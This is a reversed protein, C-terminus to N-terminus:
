YPWDFNGNCDRDLKIIFDDNDNSYSMGCSAIGDDSTRILTNPTNGVYKTWVEHKDATLLTLYGHTTANQTLESAIIYGGSYTKTIDEVSYDGLKIVNEALLEGVNSFTGIWLNSSDDLDYCSGAITINGDDELLISRFKCVEKETIIQENLLEGESDIIAIYGEREYSKSPTKSEMIAIFNGNSTECVDHLRDDKYDLTREWEVNGLSSFKVVLGDMESDEISEDASFGMVFGGDSTKNLTYEYSGILNNNYTDTDSISGNDNINMLYVTDSNNGFCAIQYSGNELKEIRPATGDDKIHVYFSKSGTATFKIVRVINLDQLIDTVAVFYGNDATQVMDFFGTYGSYEGFFTIDNVPETSVKSDDSCSVVLVFFSLLLILSKKWM